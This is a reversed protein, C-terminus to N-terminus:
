PSASHAKIHETIAIVIGDIGHCWQLNFCSPMSFLSQRHAATLGNSPRYIPCQTTALLLCVSLAIRQFSNLSQQCDHVSKRIEQVSPMLDPCDRVGKDKAHCTVHASQKGQVLMRSDQLGGRQPSSQMAVLVDCLSPM